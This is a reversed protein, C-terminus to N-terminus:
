RGSAAGRRRSGNPRPGAMRHQRGFQLEMNQFIIDTTPFAAGQDVVTVLSLRNNNTGWLSQVKIGKFVWKNTSRIYLTSFVPTQGPAAELTVFSPNVVQQKYDGIGIDGYNGSMLRITDGPQVPPAGLQDAVYVRKGDAVHPYPVSSLLPRTYGAPVRASLVSQLSNWPATQSGNGGTPRRRATSPISVGSRESRARSLAARTFRAARRGGGLAAALCFFGGFILARPGRDLIM